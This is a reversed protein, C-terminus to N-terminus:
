WDSVMRETGEPDYAGICPGIKGDLETSGDDNVVVHARTKRSSAATAMSVGTAGDEKPPASTIDSWVKTVAHSVSWLGDILPGTPIIPM